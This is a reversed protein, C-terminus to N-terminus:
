KQSHDPSCREVQSVSAGEIVADREQCVSAHALLTAQRGNSSRAM